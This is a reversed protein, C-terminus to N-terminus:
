NPQIWRAVNLASGHAAAPINNYFFSVYVPLLWLNTEDSCKVADTLNNSLVARLFEGPERHHNVYALIGEHMNKPIVFRRFSFSKIKDETLYM